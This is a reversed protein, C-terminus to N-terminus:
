DAPRGPLPIDPILTRPRASQPASLQQLIAVWHTFLLLHGEGPLTTMTSRPMVQSLHEAMGPLIDRDASGQWIAAPTTVDAPTFGWPTTVARGHDFMGATGQRWAEVQSARLMAAIGPQRAAAHDAPPGAALEREHAAAPNTLLERRQQSLFRKVVPPALRCMVAFNRYERRAQSVHGAGTLWGGLASVLGISSVREPHECALALAYPAGWSWGLAAFRDIGLQDALEVADQVWARLRYGPLPDSGGLGPLDIALLRVGASATLKDDPHRALRGHGYGAVYLVPTGHADGVDAVMVTRRDTLRLAVDV